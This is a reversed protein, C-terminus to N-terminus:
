DRTLDIVVPGATVSAKLKAEIEELDGFSTRIQAQVGDTEAKVVKIPANRSARTSPGGIREDTAETKILDQRPSASSSSSPPPLYQHPEEAKRKRSSTSSSEAVAASIIGQARLVERPRYMFRIRAYPCDPADLRTVKVADRAPRRSEVAGLAVRHGGLKKDREHVAEHSVTNSMDITRPGSVRRTAPDLRFALLEICGIKEASWNNAADDDDTLRLDGFQFHRFTTPSVDVGKVTNHDGLKCLQKFVRKGDMYIAFGVLEQSDNEVRIWFKQNAESAVYCTVTNGDEREEYEVAREGNVFITAGLGLIRPM